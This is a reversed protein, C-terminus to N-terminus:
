LKRFYRLAEEYQGLQGLVSGMLFCADDGFGQTQEIELLEKRAQEFAGQQCLQIAYKTREIVPNSHKM